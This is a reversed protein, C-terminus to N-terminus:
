EQKSCQVIPESAINGLRVYRNSLLNTWDAALTKDQPNKRRLLALETLADHWLGNAAYLAIRERPTAADLQSKLSPSLPVRKVWWQVPVFGAGDGCTFSFSWKYTKGINLKPANKPLSFSVIGPGDSLQFPPTEYVKDQQENWLVFKASHPLKPSYPVYVWFTPQEAITLGMYYKPVLATLPKDVQPCGPRSGADDSGGPVRGDTPPDYDLPPRSLLKQIPTTNTTAPTFPQAQSRMLSNTFTVLGLTCMSALKLRM